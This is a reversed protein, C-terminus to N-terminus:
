IMELPKVYDIIREGKRDIYEKVGMLRGDTHSIIDLFERESIKIVKLADYDYVADPKFNGTNVFDIKDLIIHKFRDEVAQGKPLRFAVDISSADYTRLIWYCDKWQTSPLWQFFSSMLLHHIWTYSPINRLDAPFFYGQPLQHHFKFYM